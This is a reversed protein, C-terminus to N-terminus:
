CKSLFSPHNTSYLIRNKKHRGRGSRVQLDDDRDNEVNRRAEWTDRFFDFVNYSSLLNGRLRYDTVQSKICMAGNEGLGIELM